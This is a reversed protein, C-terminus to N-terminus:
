VRGDGDEEMGFSGDMMLVRDCVRCLYLVHLSQMTGRSVDHIGCRERWWRGDGEVM